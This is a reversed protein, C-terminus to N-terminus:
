RGVWARTFCRDELRGPSWRSWLGLVARRTYETWVIADPAQIRRVVQRIGGEHVSYGAWVGPWDKTSAVETVLVPGHARVRNRHTHGSTVVADPNARALRDLFPRGQRASVGAPWHTPVNRRQLHHHLAVLVPGPAEAAAAVLADAVPELTGHGQNPITTDGTLLRIGALDEVTVGRRYPVQRAGLTAPVEMDSGRDVDHNGPLVVLPLDAFRDVLAGVQAFHSPTRHEALDGKLIVVEAGWSRLEDLAAVACRWPHPGGGPEVRERMTNLAGFRTAGLHLDSITGIRGLLAGPPPLLTRVALVSEGGDWRVRIRHGCGAALGDLVLGGPGGQHQVMAGADDAEATVPGAPLHGWTLQAARDEVAWVQLPSPPVLGRAPVPPTRDVGTRLAVV